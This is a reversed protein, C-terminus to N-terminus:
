DNGLSVDNSNSGFSPLVVSDLQIAERKVLYGHRTQYGSAEESSIIM